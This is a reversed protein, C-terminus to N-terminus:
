ESQYRRIPALLAQPGIDDAGTGNVPEVKPSAEPQKGESPKPFDNQLRKNANEMNVQQTETNRDTATPTVFVVLETEDNQFRKSRFLAGLIPIDGLVPLKDISTSKNRKLLGSLVITEGQKVNFESETSRKLLAPGGITSSQATDIESVESLIKARIVGNRDVKPEVEL